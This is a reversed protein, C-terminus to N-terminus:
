KGIKVTNSHDGSITEVAFSMNASLVTGVAYSGPITERQDTNAIEYNAGSKSSIGQSVPVISAVREGNKKDAFCAIVLYKKEMNM